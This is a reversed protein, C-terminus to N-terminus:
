FAQRTISKVVSTGDVSFQLIGHDADSFTLTATGAQSPRVAGPDFPADFAPGTVQYWPGSYVNSATWGGAPMVFWFPRRDTGYTYMVAFVIGSPHQVINLGWGSEGPNWWLDSYDFAPVPAPPPPPPAPHLVSQIYAAIDALQADTFNFPGVAAQMVPVLGNIAQRILTPNNAGLVAGGVPPLSHCVICISRYLVEGNAVNQAFAAGPAALLAALAVCRRLNM